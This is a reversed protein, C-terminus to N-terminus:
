KDEECNYKVFLDALKQYNARGEEMNESSITITDICIACYSPEEKEFFNICVSIVKKIDIIGTFDPENIMAFNKHTTVRENM